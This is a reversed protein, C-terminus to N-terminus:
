VTRKIIINRERSKYLVKGQRVYWVDGRSVRKGSEGRGGQKNCGRSEYEGVIM